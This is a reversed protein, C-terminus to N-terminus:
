RTQRCTRVGFLNSSMSPPPSTEDGDHENEKQDDAVEGTWRLVLEAAPQQDRGHVGILRDAVADNRAALAPEVRGAARVGLADDAVVAGQAAHPQRPPPKQAAARPGRFSGVVRWRSLTQNRRSQSAIPPIGATARAFFHARFVGSVPAHRTQCQAPLSRGVARCPLCLTMGPLGRPPVIRHM